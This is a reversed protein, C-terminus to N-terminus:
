SRKQASEASEGRDAHRISSSKVRHACTNVIPAPDANGPNQDPRTRPGPAPHGPRRRVVSSQDPDYLYAPLSHGIMPQVSSMSNAPLAAPCMLAALAASLCLSM